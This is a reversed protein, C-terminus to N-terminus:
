WRQERRMTKHITDITHKDTDTQEMDKKKDQRSSTKTTLWVAYSVQEVHQQRHQADVLLIHAIMVERELHEGLALLPFLKHGHQSPELVLWDYLTLGWGDM